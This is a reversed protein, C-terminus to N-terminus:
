KAAQRATSDRRRLSALVAGLFRSMTEAETSSAKVAGVKVKAVENPHLVASLRVSAGSPFTIALEGPAPEQVDDAGVEAAAERGAALVDAMSLAAVFTGKPKRRDELARGAKDFASDIVAGTGAQVAIIAVFAGVIILVVVVAPDM